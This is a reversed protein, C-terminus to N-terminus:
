NGKETEMTLKLNFFKMTNNKFVKMRHEHQKSDMCKGCLDYDECVLCHFRSGVIPLMKCEDCEYGEHVYKM